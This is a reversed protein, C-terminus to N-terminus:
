NARTAKQQELYRSIVRARKEKDDWIGNEKLTNIFATPLQVAIKGKPTTRTQGSAIPPAARKPAVKAPPTEDEEDLEDDKAFKHPLREKVRDDLEDWFDDSKPDYGEAALVGSLAKAIESDEDTGDPNYWDHREAWSKAKKIMVPDPQNTNQAPREERAPAKDLQQKLATLQDINKQANYMERMAKTAKAGDGQQFAETHLTEAANFAAVNDNWAKDVAARDITSLRNDTQEKWQRMQQNELRLREIEEDKAGMKRDINNKRLERKEKTTLRKHEKKPSVASAEREKAIKEDPVEEIEYDPIEAAPKEKEVGLNKGIEAAKAATDDVEVETTNEPTEAM